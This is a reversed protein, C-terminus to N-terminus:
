PKRAENETEELLLEAQEISTATKKFREGGSLITASLWAGRAGRAFSIADGAGNVSDICRALTAPDAQGWWLGGPGAPESTGSYRGGSPAGVSPHRGQIGANKSAGM